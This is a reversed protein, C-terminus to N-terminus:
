EPWKSAFFQISEPVPKGAPRNPGPFGSIVSKKEDVVGAFPPTEPTLYLLEDRNVFEEEVPEAKAMLPLTFLGALSKLFSRRRM